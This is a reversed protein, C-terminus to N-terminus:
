QLRVTRIDQRLMRVPRLVRFSFCLISFPITGEGCFPISLPSENKNPCLHLCDFFVIAYRSFRCLHLDLPWRYQGKLRSVLQNNVPVQYTRHIFGFDYRGPRGMKKSFLNM